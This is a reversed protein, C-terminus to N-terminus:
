KRARFNRPPKSLFQMESCKLKATFFLIRIECCKLRATWSFFPIKRNQFFKYLWVGFCFLFSSLTFSLDFLFDFWSVSLGLQLLFLSMVVNKLAKRFFLVSSSFPIFFRFFWIQQTFFYILVWIKTENDYKKNLLM